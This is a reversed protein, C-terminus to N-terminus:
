LGEKGHKSEGWFSELFARKIAAPSFGNRYGIDTKFSSNKVKFLAGLAHIKVIMAFQLRKFVSGWVNKRPPFWSTYVIWPYYYSMVACTPQQPLSYSFQWTQKNELLGTSFHLQTWLGYWCQEMLIRLCCVHSTSSSVRESKSEYNWISHIFSDGLSEHGLVTGEVDQVGPFISRQVAAWNKLWM